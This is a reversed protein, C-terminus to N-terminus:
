SIKEINLTKLLEKALSLSMLAPVANGIQRFAPNMTGVFKFGDPFSQLRAAERVSITRAQSSDYHIHSYTDKGLHAMLTRAPQDSEIKRWKNPFKTPDYPPVYTAKLKEYDYESEDNIDLNEIITNFIKKAILYAKPYDDGPSMVRFIRQDRESISRIVHDYIYGKSEFGDWCRMSKIYSSINVDNRYSIAKDFRRAGRKMTGDLHGTIIPLDGIADEVTVPCGANLPATPTPLYYLSENNIHKLAVQRSSNYGRPFDVLNTPTPFKFKNNIDTHVGVLFFRERLQPVGYNASNLLTYTCKYGLEELIESIEEGLNHGGYNLIDPVNEMLIVLPRLYKIYEIYPVYLQSRPDLRFAEPHQSIERLKARGIRAFAPCPPGGILVDVVDLPDSYGWESMLQGPHTKTIDRALSLSDYIEKCDQSHFNLAYSQIALPDSEIGGILKYGALKFGLSMGGCGSFLDLVRPQEGRSLRELKKQISRDLKNVELTEVM